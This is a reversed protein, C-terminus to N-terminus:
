VFYPPNSSTRAYLIGAPWFDLISRQSSVQENWISKRLEKKIEVGIHEQKIATNFM